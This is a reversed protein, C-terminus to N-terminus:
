ALTVTLAVAALREVNAYAPEVLEEGFIDPDIEEYRWESVAHSRLPELADALVDRGAVIPAGSYLLLRGGPSLRQLAQGAIRVSLATGWDAGGDRYARGLPDAIFPPNAIVTDIAGDVQALIDSVVLTGQCHNLALNTRAAALATENIDCLVLATAHAAAVVAGAGSGTGIDVVRGLSRASALREIARAFRYTDPGFFVSDEKITPFASHVFLHSGLTAFRVASRLRDGSAPTTANAALLLDAALPFQAPDFPLNWGFVDRLSHASHASRATRQMVISHTAPTVTTFAYERERLVQGLALLAPDALDLRRANSQHHPTFSHTLSPM